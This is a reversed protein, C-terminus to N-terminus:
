SSLSPKPSFLAQLHSALVIDALLGVKLRGSFGIIIGLLLPRVVLSGGPQLINSLMIRFEGYHRKHRARCLRWEKAILVTLRM